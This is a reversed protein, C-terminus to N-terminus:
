QPDREYGLSSDLEFYDHELENGFGGRVWKASAESGLNPGWVGLESGM